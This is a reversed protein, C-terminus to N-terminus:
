RPIKMKSNFNKAIKWIEKMEKETVASGKRIDM